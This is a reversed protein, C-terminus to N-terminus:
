AARRTPPGTAEEAQAQPADAAQEAEQYRLGARLRRDEGGAQRRRRARAQGRGGASRGPAPCRTRLCPGVRAHLSSSGTHPQGLDAHAGPGPPRKWLAARPPARDGAAVAARGRDRVRAAGRHDELWAGIDTRQGVCARALDFHRAPEKSDFIAFPLLRVNFPLARPGLRRWVKLGDAAIYPLGPDAVQAAMAARELYGRDASYPNAMLRELSADEADLILQDLPLALDRRVEDAADKWAVDILDVILTHPLCWVLADVLRARAWGELGKLYAALEDGRQCAQRSVSLLWAPAPRREREEDHATPRFSHLALARAWLPFFQGAPLESASALAQQCLLLALSALAPVKAFDAVITEAVPAFTPIRALAAVLGLLAEREDRSASEAAVKCVLFRAALLIENASDAPNSAGQVVRALLQAAEGIRDGESARLLLERTALSAALRRVSTAVEPTVKAQWVLLIDGAQRLPWAAFLLHIADSVADVTEPPAPPAKSVRAMPEIGLRPDVVAPEPLRALDLGALAGADVQGQGAVWAAVAAQLAPARAAVLDALSLWMRQARVFDRAHMCALLLPWRARAAAADDAGHTLLRPEQEARAALTHLRGWASQRHLEPLMDRVLFASRGLLPEREAKDLGFLVAVAGEVDRRAVAKDLQAEARRLAKDQSGHGM